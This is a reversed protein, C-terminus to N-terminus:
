KGKKAARVKVWRARSTPTRGDIMGALSALASFGKSSGPEEFQFVVAKAPQGATHTDTAFRPDEHLNDATIRSNVFKMIPALTSPSSITTQGYQWLCATLRSLM